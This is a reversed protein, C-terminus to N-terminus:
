AAPRGPHAASQAGAAGGRPAPPADRWLVQALHCWCTTLVAIHLHLSTPNTAFPLFAYQHFLEAIRAQQPISCHMELSLSVPLQSTAFASDRIAEVVAEVSVSTCLTHGHTIIPEGKDGDWCDLEISRVGQLLLRAYRGRTVLSIHTLTCAKPVLPPLFLSADHSVLAGGAIFSPVRM